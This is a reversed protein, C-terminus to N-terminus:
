MGFTVPEVNPQAEYLELVAWIFSWVHERGELNLGEIHRENEGPGPELTGVQVGVSLMTKGTEKDRGIRIQPVEVVNEVQPNSVTAM